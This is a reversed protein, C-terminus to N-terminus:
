EINVDVSKFFQILFLFHYPTMDWFFLSSPQTDFSQTKTLQAPFIVTPSKTITFPKSNWSDTGRPNRPDTYLSTRCARISMCVMNVRIVMSVFILTPNTNTMTLVKRCTSNTSNCRIFCIKNKPM